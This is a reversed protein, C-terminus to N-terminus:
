TLFNMYVATDANGHNAAEIIKGLSSKSTGKQKETISEDRDALERNWNDVRYIDHPNIVSPCLLLLAVCRATHIPVSYCIDDSDIVQGPPQSDCLSWAIGMFNSWPYVERDVMGLFPSKKWHFRMLIFSSFWHLNYKIM